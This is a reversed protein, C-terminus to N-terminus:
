SRKQKPSIELNKLGEEIKGMFPDIPLNETQVTQLFNVLLVVDNDELRRDVALLLLRDLVTESLGVTRAAQVSDM